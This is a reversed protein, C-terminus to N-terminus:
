TVLSERLLSFVRPWQKRILGLSKTEAGKWSDPDGVREQLGRWGGVWVVVGWVGM